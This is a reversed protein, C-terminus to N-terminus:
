PQPEGEAASRGVDNIEMRPLELGLGIGGEKKRDAIFELIGVLDIGVCTRQGASMNIVEKDGWASVFDGDNSASCKQNDICIAAPNAM